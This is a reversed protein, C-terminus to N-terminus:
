DRIFCSLLMETQLVSHNELTFIFNTLLQCEQLDKKLFINTDKANINLYSSFSM